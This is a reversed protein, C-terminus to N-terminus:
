NVNHTDFMKSTVILVYLLHIFKVQPGMNIGYHVRFALSTEFFRVCFFVKM